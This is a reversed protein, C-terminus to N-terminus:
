VGPLLRGATDYGAAGLAVAAHLAAGVSAEERVASLVIPMGFREACIRRLHKNHRLGNGSGTVTAFGSRLELPLLEYYRYLEDAMGALFAETLHEPTLNDPGIGEIAGKAGPESRTGYFQTRVTLKDGAPPLRDLLQEMRGYLERGSASTERERGDSFVDVVSRFLRELMAYSKGGALSAGVLLVGGGPFPRTELGEAATYRDSYASLQGGTGINLLLSTRLEKVSGLVSAQNDGLANFVPIGESTHGAPAVSPRVAPLYDASIGAAALAAEDFRGQRVDFIGISAANSAEIIPASGRVIRMAIYDAITCLKVADAPLKGQSTLAAHTVLGFGTSLEYGTIRAMREAITEHEGAPLLGKRDQWTYLPSVAQGHRDVYVIGHMQGTVGIGAAKPYRALLQRLITEVTGYISAPDQGHEAQGSRNPLTVAQLLRKATVEYAAGCISTTGIDIGIVIIAWGEQRYPQM